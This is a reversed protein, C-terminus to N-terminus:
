ANSKRPSLVLGGLGALMLWVTPPLPVPTAGFSADFVIQSGVASGAAFSVAISDTITWTGINVVNFLTLPGNISTPSVYPGYTGVTTGNSTYNNLLSSGSAVGASFSGTTQEYRTYNAGYLSTPSTAFLYNELITLTDAQSGATANTANRFYTATFSGYTVLGTALTSSGVRSGELDFLDGNPLEAMESGSISSGGGGAQATTAPCSGVDCAGNVSLGWPSAQAVSVMGAAIAFATTLCLSRM